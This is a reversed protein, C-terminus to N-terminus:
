KILFYIQTYIDLNKDLGLSKYEKSYDKLYAYTKDYNVQYLSSAVKAKVSDKKYSMMGDLILIYRECEFIIEIHKEYFSKPVNISKFFDCQPNLESAYRRTFNFSNDKEEIADKLEQLEKGESARMFVFLKAMQELYETLSKKDSIESIKLKQVRPPSMIKELSKILQSVMADTDLKPNKKKYQTLTYLDKSISETFNATYDAPTNIDIDIQEESTNIYDKIGIVSKWNESENYGLTQIKKIEDTYSEIDVLDQINTEQQASSPKSPGFKSLDIYKGLIFILGTISLLFVAIVTYAKIKSEPNSNLFAERIKQM